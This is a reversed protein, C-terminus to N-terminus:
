TLSLLALVGAALGAAIGCAAAARPRWTMMAVVILAAATLMGLWLVWGQAAGRLALSAALSLLLGVVGGLRLWPRARGVSRDRGFGDEFHRDMAMSLSVFGALAALLAVLAAMTLPATGSM